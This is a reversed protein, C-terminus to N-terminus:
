KADLLTQITFKKMQLFANTVAVRREPDSMLTDLIAPVIQWSIGYKDTIWGCMKEVGGEGLKSWYLDIEDQTECPVVFSYSENFDQQPNGNLLMFSTNNFECQVVWQNERKIRSEPFISCYYQAAELANEKFWICTHITKAM